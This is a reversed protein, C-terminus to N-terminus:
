DNKVQKPNKMKGLFFQALVTVGLLGAGFTGFIKFWKGTNYAEQGAKYFLESPSIGTLQFLLDSGTKQPARILHRPRAFYRDGGLKEMVLSRYKNMEDRVGLYKAFIEKTDKHLEGDYMFTMANQYFYKDGPINVMESTKGFYKNKIKGNEVELPSTDKSPHPNRKMWFKTAFDSSHGSLSIIKCMEILEEKIERSVVMNNVTKIGNPNEAVRRYFDLTNVMRYFASKIGLLRDQVYMKQIHKYTGAEDKGIHYATKTFGLDELEKAYKDFITDVAKDYKTITKNDTLIYATMDSPKIENNLQAIKEVLLNMVKKYSADNSVVKEFNERLTKALLQENFRVKEIQKPTMGLVKLLDNSVNHWYNAAVTEQSDALKIFAYEDLVYNRARFADLSKALKTLTNSINEDLINARVEKLPMSYARGVIPIISGANEMNKPHALNYAGLKKLIDKNIVDKIRQFGVVESFTSRSINNEEFLKTLVKEDPIVTEVFEKTYSKNAFQKRINEAVNHATSDTILYEGNILLRNLDAKFIEETVPDLKYTFADSIKRVIEDDINKGSYKQIIKSLEKELDKDDYKKSHKNIDELLLDAKKNQKINNYNRLYNETRNCILASMIPTAFGATLMWLTNNQVALKKMKEQIFERRNPINKPVGLRNGIKDIEKDSYLDWPIFQPDQYFPKKRGFSDEYKKQVNVGHILYAPLQIALKPWIAMSAFFSALGVFEMGKTTSTPRKQMLYAAIALGGAFMGLDNLKGLEHDNAKGSAAHKFAKLTYTSNKFTDIPSYLINGSLLKGKGKLPKIFTRNNLEHQIDFDPVPKAPAIQTVQPKNKFNQILNTSM